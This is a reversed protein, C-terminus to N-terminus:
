KIQRQTGYLGSEPVSVGTTAAKKNGWQPTHALLVVSVTLLSYGGYPSIIMVM